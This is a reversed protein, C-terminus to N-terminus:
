GDSNPGTPCKLEDLAVFIPPAILGFFIIGVAINRASYEYTLKPDEKGNLGICKGHDTSSACGSMVMMSVLGLVLIRKM